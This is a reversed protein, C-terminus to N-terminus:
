SGPPLDGEAQWQIKLERHCDPCIGHSFRAESRSQIYQEMQSWIGEDDRIKKCYSCIPILGQLTKVESLAKGLDEILDLNHQNLTELATNNQKLKRRGAVLVLATLVGLLGLAIWLNRQRVHNRGERQLATILYAQKDHEFTAAADSFRKRDLDDTLAKLALQTEYAQHYAGAVAYEEALTATLVTVYSADKLDKFYDLAEQIGRLGETHNGLHNLAIGRNAKSVMRNLPANFDKSLDLARDAAALAARYDRKGLYVDSLDVAVTLAVDANQSRQALQSAKLLETLQGESDNKAGYTDALYLHCYAELSAEGAAQAEEIAQLGTHVAEEMRGAQRYLRGMHAFVGAQEKGKGLSRFIRQARTFAEVAESILGLRGLADGELQSAQGILAQAERAGPGLAELRPRLPALLARCEPLRGQDLLIGAELLDVRVPDLVDRSQSALERARPLHASASAYDSHKALDRILAQRFWLEERPDLGGELLRLADQACSISTIPNDRNDSDIQKRLELLRQALDAGQGASRAM